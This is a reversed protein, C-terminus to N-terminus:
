VLWPGLLLRFLIFLTWQSPTVANNSTIQVHTTLTPAGSTQSISKGTTSSVAKSPPAKAPTLAQAIVTQGDCLAGYLAPNCQPLNLEVYNGFDCSENPVTSSDNWVMRQMYAIRGPITGNQVCRAVIIPTPNSPGFSVECASTNEPAFVDPLTGDSTCVPYMPPETPSLSGCQAYITGYQSSPGYRYTQDIVPTFSVNTPINQCLTLDSYPSIKCGTPLTIACNDQWGGYQQWPAFVIPTGPTYMYYQAAGWRVALLMCFLSLHKTVM